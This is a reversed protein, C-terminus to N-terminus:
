APQVGPADVEGDCGVWGEVLAHACELSRRLCADVDVVLVDPMPSIHLLLPNRVDLSVM